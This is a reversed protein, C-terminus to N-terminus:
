GAGAATRSPRRCGRASGRKRRAGAAHQRARVTTPDILLRRVVGFAPRATLLEFMTAMSGSHVWRRFRNYVADWSGFEGPLDRWPM